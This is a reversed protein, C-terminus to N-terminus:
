EQYFIEVTLTINYGDSPGLEGGALPVLHFTKANAVRVNTELSRLFSKIGEYSGEISVDLELAGLRKVLPQKSKEFALPRISFSRVTVRSLRAISQLQNLAQTVNEELPLALSVTEQLKAISQFQSILDQVQEVAARQNNFLTEKSIALARKKNVETMEPRIFSGYVLLIGLFFFGALGISLIRKTSTKM